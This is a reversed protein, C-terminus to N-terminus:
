WCLIVECVIGVAALICNVSAVRTVKAVAAMAAGPFLMLARASTLQGTSVEWSRELDIKSRDFFGNSINLCM